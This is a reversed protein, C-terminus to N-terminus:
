VCPVIDFAVTIRQSETCIPNTGHWMYSPFFVVNGPIPKVAYDECLYVGNIDPRGFCLWGNGSQAVEDPVDVYFVGSLWGASHYHSKHFGSRKLRVSWSGIVEIEESLRSLFPHKKQPPLTKIFEVANEIIASKLRQITESPTDLLNEFTQSGNRLSQGLPHREDNHLQSLYQLVESTFRQNASIDDILPKACIFHTYDCLDAYNQLKESLKYATSLLTWYGQNLPSLKCVREFILVAEKYRKLSLLAYGKEVLLPLKDGKIDKIARESLSLADEYKSLDRLANCLYATAALKIDIDSSNTILELWKKATESDGVKLMLECYVLVIAPNDESLHKELYLFPSEHNKIWAFHAYESNIEIDLPFKSLGEQYTKFAEETKGQLGQVAALNQYFIASAGGAYLAKRYVDEAKDLDGDKRFLNGLNNLAAINKADIALVDLLYRKALDSDGSKSAITSLLISLSLHHPREHLLEKGKKGAEVYKELACLARVANYKYDFANPNLRLAERFWALAKTTKGTELLLNGFGNMLDAAKPFKKLGKEFAKVSKEIRGLKRLAGGYVQTVVPDVNILAPSREVADVVSSYDGRKYSNILQPIVINPQLHMEEIFGEIM